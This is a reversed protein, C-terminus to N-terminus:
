GLKQCMKKEIIKTGDVRSLKPLHCYQSIVLCFRVGKQPTRKLEYNKM